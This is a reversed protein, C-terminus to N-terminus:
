TRTRKDAVSTSVSIRLKMHSVILLNPGITYVPSTSAGDDPQDSERGTRTDTVATTVTATGYTDSGYCVKSANPHIPVVLHAPIHALNSKPRGGVLSRAAELPIPKDNDMAAVALHQSKGKAKGPPHRQFHRSIEPQIMPQDIETEIEDERPDPDQSSSEGEDESDDPSTITKIQDMLGATPKRRPQVKPMPTVKKIVRQQRDSKNSKKGGTTVTTPPPSVAQRQGPRQTGPTETVPHWRPCKQRTCERDKRIMPCVKSRKREGPTIESAAAVDITQNDGSSTRLTPALAWSPPRSSSPPVERLHKWRRRNKTRRGNSNQIFDRLGPRKPSAQVGRASVPQQLLSPVDRSQSYDISRSDLIATRITRSEKQVYGYFQAGTQYAM